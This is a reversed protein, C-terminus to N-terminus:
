TKKLIDTADTPKQAHRPRAVKLGIGRLRAKLRTRFGSYTLTLGYKEQLTLHYEVYSNPCNEPDSLTAVIEEWITGGNQAPGDLESTRFRSRGDSLYTSLGFTRYVNLSKYISNRDMELKEAIEKQSSVQERKILLLIQIRKVKYESTAEALAKKLVQETEQIVPFNPPKPM